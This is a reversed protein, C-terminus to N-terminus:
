SPKSRYQTDLLMCKCALLRFLPFQFLDDFELLALRSTQYDTQHLSSVRCLCHTIEAFGLSKKRENWLKFVSSQMQIYCASGSLRPRGKCSRIAAM